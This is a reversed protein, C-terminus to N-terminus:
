RAVERTRYYSDRRWMGEAKESLEGATEEGVGGGLEAKTEGWASWHGTSM